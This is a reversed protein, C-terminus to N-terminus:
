SNNQLYGCHRFWALVDNDTVTQLAQGIADVLADVTRAAIKRLYEKIKSWMQEIPNLDPSYPPLYWLEAGTAEIGERIGAAKHPSLNDMVVIDGPRLTPVLVQQVYARFVDADVAGEIVFAAQPGDLGVAALM